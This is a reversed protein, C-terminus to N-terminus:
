TQVEPRTLASVLCSTRAYVDARVDVGLPLEPTVYDPAIMRWLVAGDDARVLEHRLLVMVRSGVM